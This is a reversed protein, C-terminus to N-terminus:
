ETHIYILALANALFWRLPDPSLRVVTAFNIRIERGKIARGELSRRAKDAEEKKALEVFAYGKPKGKQPGSRHFILDLKRITGFPKFLTLLDHESIQPALNSVFLRRDSLERRSPPATSAAASHAPSLSPSSSLPLQQSSSSAAASTSRLGGDADM